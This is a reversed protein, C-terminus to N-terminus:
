RKNWSTVHNDRMFQMFEEAVQQINDANYTGIQSRMRANTGKGIRTMMEFGSGAFSLSAPSRTSVFDWLIRSVIGPVHSVYAVFEDHRVADVIIPNAGCYAIFDSVKHVISEKMNKTPTIVWPRGAFLTAQSDKNGRTQGGGMPHTPVFVMRNALDLNMKVFEQTIFSKVSAVDVIVVGPKLIECGAVLTEAVSIVQDIPTAIIILDCAAYNNVEWEHNHITIQMTKDGKSRLVKEISRGILGDGIIGITQFSSLVGRELQRVSKSFQFLVQYVSSICDQLVLDKTRKQLSRLVEEERLTDTLPVNLSKNKIRAVDRVLSLRKKLLKLMDRDVADIRNRITTLQKM